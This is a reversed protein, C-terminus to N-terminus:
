TAVTIYFQMSPKLMMKKLNNDESITRGFVFIYMFLFIPQMHTVSRKKVTKVSLNKHTLIEFTPFKRARRKVHVSFSLHMKEKRQINEDNQLIEM